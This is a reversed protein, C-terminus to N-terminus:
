VLYEYGLWMLFMIGAAYLILFIIMATIFTLGEKFKKRRM